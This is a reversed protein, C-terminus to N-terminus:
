FNAGVNIHFVGGLVGYTVAQGREITCRNNPTACRKWPLGYSLNFSGLPTLYNVAMGYSVYNRQWLYEPHSLIQEFRYPVNDVMQAPAQGPPPNGEFDRRFQEEEKPMFFSNSSDIFTTLAMTDKILQYRLEAKYAAMHSGGSNIQERENDQINYYDIVPGLKQRRFGRNTEAGGAHLRESTPLVDAVEGRREVDEYAFLSYGTALVFNESLQFYFNNTIGYRYYRLDGGFHYRAWSSELSLMYGQTPWAQDNRQDLTYRLGVRGTRVDGTEILNFTLAEAAEINTIKQGYFGVIKSGPLWWRLTHDLALEGQRSMEWRQIGAEAKTNVTVTGNVPIDFIYPEIYGVGLSRGLLTKRTFGDQRHEESLSSKMFVQRGWGGINNYAAELSFRGGEDLSWGPGFMVSGPKSERVVISYPVIEYQETLASSDSPVISISSFLGLRSLANRTEEIKDPDFWEGSAFRLERRVVEVNTRVLGTITVEGFKVRPGEDIKVLVKTQINHQSQNQILNMQQKAYIYGRKHYANRLRQEFAILDGWVLPKQEEIEWLELIDEDSLASNGSPILKTFLRQQGERIVFVLGAHGTSPDRNIRPYNIQTDWFGDANYATKLADIGKRIAEQNLPSSDIRVISDMDMIKLCKDKSFHEIGEFQISNILYRVGPKVKYTYTITDSDDETVVPPEVVVDDYGEARYKRTIEGIVTDPDSIGSETKDLESSWINKVPSDIEIHVKKGLTGPIYISASNSALDYTIEPKLIKRQDYGRDELDQEFKVMAEEIKERDCVDGVEFDVNLFRPMAFGSSIERILCPYDEDVKFKYAVWDGKPVVELDVAARYFGRFQLYRKVDATLKQRIELADVEGLYKELNAQLQSRFTRTTLALDFEGIIQAPKVTIVWHQQQWAGTVSLFPAAQSIDRILFSLQEADDINPHRSRLRDLQMPKIANVPEISWSAAM